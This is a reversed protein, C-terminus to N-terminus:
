SLESPDVGILRALIVDINRRLETRRTSDVDGLELLQKALAGIEEGVAGGAVVEDLVPIGELHQPEFKQFDARFAPTMPNLYWNVLGSNLYGLLPFLMESDQPVVPTGGVLYASGLDDIAFATQVALDRMLLKKSNLWREDRRRVLEYWEKGGASISGRAELASRYVSFYKYTYPYEQQLEDESILRDNRYPYLLFKNPRVRDYQRIDSGYVVPRLLSTELLHTDGLGNTVSILQERIASQPTLIYLDNAGVKIGQFIGAYASLPESGEELRIRASMVSPALFLWVGGGRPHRVDFAKLYDNREEGHERAAMALLLGMFRPTLKLVRVFRFSADLSNATLNRRAIVAGIYASTGKFVENSGFDVVALLSASDALLLRLNSADRNRFLRNPVVMGLLGGQGLRQIALEVFLYSYDFRGQATKFREALEAKSAVTGFPMFPPNGIIVDYGSPLTRWTDQQLSDGQIIVEDLKPLPLPDPEEALRL